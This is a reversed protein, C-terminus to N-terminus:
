PRGAMVEGFILGQSCVIFRWCFTGPMDPAVARFGLSAFAVLQSKWIKGITPWGHVFILLPGEHPGAALYFTTKKGGIGHTFDHEEITTM